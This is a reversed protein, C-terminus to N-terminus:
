SGTMTNLRRPQPFASGRCQLRRKYASVPIVASPVFFFSGRPAQLSADGPWTPAFPRPALLRNLAKLGGNPQESFTGSIRM